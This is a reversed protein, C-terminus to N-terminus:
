TLLKDALHEIYALPESGSDFSFKTQSKLSLRFLKSQSFEVQVNVIVKVIVLVPADM